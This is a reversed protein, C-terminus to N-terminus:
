HRTKLTRRLLWAYIGANVVVVFLGLGIQLSRTLRDPYLVPLLYHEVFGGSYTTGGGKDRFWDELWTLPCMWDAFEILAAWLMAPVHLWAWRKRKLVLIGGLVSFIAFAFHVVVVVDACVRFFM